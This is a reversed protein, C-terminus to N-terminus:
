TTDISQSSTLTLKDKRDAMVLPGLRIFMPETCGPQIVNYFGDNCEHLTSEKPITVQGPALFSTHVRFSKGNSKITRQIKQAETAM